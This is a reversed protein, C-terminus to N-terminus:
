KCYVHFAGLYDHMSLVLSDQQPSDCIGVETGDALMILQLMRYM